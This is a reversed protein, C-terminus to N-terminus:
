AADGCFKNSKKRNETATIVRLNWPVHLGSVFEGKIPVIHDVQHEVGTERTVKAAEVYIVEIENRFHRSLSSAARAYREANAAARSARQEPTQISVFEAMHAARMRWPGDGPLVLGFSALLGLGSEAADISIGARRALRFPIAEFLGVDDASLLISVYLWRAEIPLSLVAESDLLGDRILRAPM